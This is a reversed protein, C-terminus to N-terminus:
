RLIRTRALRRRITDLSRRSLPRVDAVGDDLERGNLLNELGLRVDAHVLPYSGTEKEQVEKPKTSRREEKSVGGGVTIGRGRHVQGGAAGPGIGSM